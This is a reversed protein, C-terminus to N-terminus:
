RLDKQLKKSEKYHLLWKWRGSGNLKELVKVVEKLQGPSVAFLWLTVSSSVLGPACGRSLALCWPTSLAKDPLAAFIELSEAECGRQSETGTAPFGGATM